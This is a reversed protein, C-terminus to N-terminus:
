KMIQTSGSPPLATDAKNKKAAKKKKMAKKRAKQEAVIDPKVVKAKAVQPVPGNDLCLLKMEEGKAVEKLEIYEEGKSIRAQGIAFTRKEGKGIDLTITGKEPNIEEVKGTVPSMGGMGGHGAEVAGASGAPERAQLPAAALAAAILATAALKM